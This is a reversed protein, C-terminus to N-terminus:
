TAGKDHPKFEDLVVRLERLKEQCVQEAQKWDGSRIRLHCAAAHVDAKRWAYAAEVIIELLENNVQFATSQVRSLINPDKSQFRSSQCGVINFNYM